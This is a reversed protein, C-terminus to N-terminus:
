KENKGFYYKFDRYSFLGFGLSLLLCTVAMIPIKVAVGWVMGVLLLILTILTALSIIARAVKNM